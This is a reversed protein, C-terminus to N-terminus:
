RIDRDRGACESKQSKVESKQSRGEWLVGADVAGVATRGCLAMALELERVLISVVRSVGEAGAAGLGYLYPRGILVAAAGLALAKIIDTGRRVGGDLLVPLRGAVAATVEPLADITAPLTDLNRGGHNSVLIGDVGTEVARRADVGTLIGKLLLPRRAVGRLWAVDEWTVPERGPTLISRRGRNLDDLHPTTVGEPLRFASRSQRDRSGIVPTDVTLVIAKVGAAEVREVLDRTVERDSQVYLQFWLPATAAAAIEEIPTNSGTSAVWTAGAAGAGRATEVEGAPHLVRHYATPALLIPFPLPEGLLTTTLDIRRVDELVRPRLRIRDFSERNWRVTLEDAAGSAVFEYAMHSLRERALREVDALSFAGELGGAGSGAAAAGEGPAGADAEPLAASNGAEPERSM